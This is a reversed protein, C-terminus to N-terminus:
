RLNNLNKCNTVSITSNLLVPMFHTHLTFYPYKIKNVKSIISRNKKGQYKAYRSSLLYSILDKVYFDSCVEIFFILKKWSIMIKKNSLRMILITYKYIDM